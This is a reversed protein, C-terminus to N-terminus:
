LAHSQRSYKILPVFDHIIFTNLNTITIAEWFRFRTGEILVATENPKNAAANQQLNQPADPKDPIVINTGSTFPEVIGPNASSILPADDETGYQKRSIIEFTDGAIITYVAVLVLRLVKMM